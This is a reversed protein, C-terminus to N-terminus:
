TQDREFRTKTKKPKSDDSISGNDDCHSYTQSLPSLRTQNRNKKHDIGKLKLKIKTNKRLSPSSSIGARLDVIRKHLPQSKFSEPIKFGSIIGILSPPIMFSSNCATVEEGKIDEIEFAQSLDVEPQRSWCQSQPPLSERITTAFHSIQLNLTRPPIPLTSIHFCSCDEEGEMNDIEFAQSIEAQEALSQSQSCFAERGTSAFHILQTGPTTNTNFQSLLFTVPRIYYLSRVRPAGITASSGGGPQNPGAVGAIPMVIHWYIASEAPVQIRVSPQFFTPAGVGSVPSDTTRQSRNQSKRGWFGESSWSDTTWQPHELGEPHLGFRKSNFTASSVKWSSLRVGIM